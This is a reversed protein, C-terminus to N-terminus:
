AARHEAEGLCWLPAGQWFRFLDNSRGHDSLCAGGRLEMVTDLKGCVSTRYPQPALNGGIAVFCAASSVAEGGTALRATGGKKVRM